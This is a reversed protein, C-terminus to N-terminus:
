AAIHKLIRGASDGVCRRGNEATPDDFVDRSLVQVLKREDFDRANWALAAGAVFMPWSVALPQPHGGDGWDTILYGIAGFKKGPRPRPACIPWRM